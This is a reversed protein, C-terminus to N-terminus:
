MIPCSVLINKVRQKKAVQSSPHDVEFVTVGGQLKDAFRYTRSDLGAGLIVYQKAGESIKQLVYDDFFRTRVAIFGSIGIGKKEFAWDM